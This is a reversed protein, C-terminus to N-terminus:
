DWRRLIQSFFIRDRVLLPRPTSTNGGVPHGESRLDSRREGNSKSAGGDTEDLALPQLGAHGTPFPCSQELVTQFSHGAARGAIGKSHSFDKKFDVNPSNWHLVTLLSLNEFGQAIIGIHCNDM